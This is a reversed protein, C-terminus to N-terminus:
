VYLKVSGVCRGGVSCCQLCVLIHWVSCYVIDEIGVYGYTAPYTRNSIIVGCFVQVFYAISLMPYLANGEGGLSIRRATSVHYLRTPPCVCVCVCVCVCACVRV